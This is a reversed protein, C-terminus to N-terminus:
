SPRRFGFQYVVLVTLFLSLISLHLDVLQAKGATTQPENVRGSPIVKALRRYVNNKKENNDHAGRAVIHCPSNTSLVRAHPRLILPV